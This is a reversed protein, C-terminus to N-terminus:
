FQLKDCVQIHHGPRAEHANITYETFKPGVDKLFFPISYVSPSTCYKSLTYTQAAFAPNFNPKLKVPCNPTTRKDGLFYFMSVTKPGLMAMVQFKPCLFYLLNLCNVEFPHQRLFHFQIRAVREYKLSIIKM